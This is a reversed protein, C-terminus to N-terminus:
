QHVPRVSDGDAHGCFNRRVIECLNHIGGDRQHVIGCYLKRFNQFEHLARVEGSSADNVPATSDEFGVAGAAAAEHHTSFRCDFSEVFVALGDNDRLDRILHVFSAQDFAHSLQDVVLVNFVYAIDSIFAIAVAHAYHDFELTPGLRLNHQVLQVLM